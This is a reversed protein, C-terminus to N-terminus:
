DDLEYLEYRSWSKFGYTVGTGDLAILFGENIRPMEECIVSKIINNSDDYVDLKHEAM